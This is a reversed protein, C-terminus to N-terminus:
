FNLTFLIRSIPLTKFKVFNFSGSGFFSGNYTYFREYYVGADNEISIGINQSPKWQMGLVALVAHSNVRTKILQTTTRLLSDRTFYIGEELKYRYEYDLGLYLNVKQTARVQKQIGYRGIFEIKEGNEVALSYFGLLYPNVADLKKMSRFGLILRNAFTGNHKKFVFTPLRETSNALWMADVGIEWKTNLEPKKDFTSFQAFATNTLCFYCLLVFFLKQLKKVFTNFILTKCADPVGASANFVHNTLTKAM